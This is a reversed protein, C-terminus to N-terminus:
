TRRTLLRQLHTGCGTQALPAALAALSTGLHNRDDLLAQMQAHCVPTTIALTWLLSSVMPRDFIPMLQKPVGKTIPCLSTGSGEALIVGKM